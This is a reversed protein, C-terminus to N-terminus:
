IVVTPAAPALEDAMACLHLVIEHAKKTDGTELARRLTRADVRIRTAVEAVHETVPKMRPIGM